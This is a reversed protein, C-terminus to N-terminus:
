SRHWSAASVLFDCAGYGIPDTTDLTSIEPLGDPQDDPSDSMGRERLTSRATTTSRSPVRSRDSPDTEGYVRATKFLTCLLPYWRMKAVALGLSEASRITRGIAGVAGTM